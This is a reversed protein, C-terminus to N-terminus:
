LDDFKYSKKNFKNKRSFKSININFITNYQQSLQLKRKCYDATFKDHTVIIVTKGKDNIEKIINM